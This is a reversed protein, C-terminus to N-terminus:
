NIVVPTFTEFKVQRDRLVITDNFTHLSTGFDVQYDLYMVDRERDGWMDGDKVFKGNGNAAYEANADSSIACNGNSDIKIIVEFSVDNEDGRDRTVLELTVEDMSLTNLNVVQDREVYKNHYVITTDLEVNGIGKGTDIGRRLYAGHWPNIYKIGYLVFDKPASAWQDVVRPDAGPLNPLGRLVSDADVVTEIKLPIVYTSTVSLPDAFFADTFQVEIGGTLSGSPIVIQMSEDLLYYEAPMPLVAQGSDSDFNVNDCLSNDVVLNLKRDTNNEYLGGMTAMILCKHDNDLSNDYIDEGLVLTRLPSQYPFYVATYDYDPFEWDQNQCSTLTGLTALVIYFLKKM